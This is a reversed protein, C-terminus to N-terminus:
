RSGGCYIICSSGCSRVSCSICKSSVEVVVVVVVVVVIEVVVVVIVIVIAVIYM